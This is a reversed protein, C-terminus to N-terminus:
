KGKRSSSKNNNEGKMKMIIIKVINDVIHWAHQYIKIISAAGRRPACCRWVGNIIIHRQAKSLLYASAILVSEDKMHRKRKEGNEGGKLMNNHYAEDNSAAKRVRRSIHRAASQRKWIIKAMHRPFFFLLYAIVLAAASHLHLLPSMINGFINEYIHNKYM